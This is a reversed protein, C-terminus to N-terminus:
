GNFIAEKAMRLTSRIRHPCERRQNYAEPVIIM